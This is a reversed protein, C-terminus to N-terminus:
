EAMRPKKTQEELSEVIIKEASDIDTLNGIASIM